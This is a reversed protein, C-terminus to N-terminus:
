REDKGGLGAVAAILDAIESRIGYRRRVHQGAATVPSYLTTQRWNIHPLKSTPQIKATTKIHKKM